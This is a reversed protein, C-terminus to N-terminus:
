QKSIQVIENKLEDIVIANSWSQCQELILDCCQHDFYRDKNKMWWSDRFENLMRDHYEDQIIVVIKEKSNM